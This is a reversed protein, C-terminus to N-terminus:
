IILSYYLGFYTLLTIFLPIAPLFKKNMQLGIFTSWALGISLLVVKIIPSLNLVTFLGEATLIFLGFLAFPTFMYNTRLFHEKFPKKALKSSIYAMLATFGLLILIILFISGFFVLINIEGLAFTNLNLILGINENFWSEILPYRTPNLFFLSFFLGIIGILFISEQKNVHTLLEKGPTRFKFKIEPNGKTCKHCVLCDRKSPNTGINVFTPCVKLSKIDSETTKPADIEVPGLKSFLALLTGIPCVYKCWVRKVMLFGLIASLSLMILFFYASAKPVGVMGFVRESLVVIFLSLFPLWSWRLLKPLWRFGKPLGRSKRLKNTYDSVAGLPCLWGCWARGVFLVSLILLPWWLVWWIDMTAGINFFNAGLVNIIMLLWVILATIYFVQPFYKTYSFKLLLKRTPKFGLALFFLLAFILFSGLLLKTLGTDSIIQSNSGEGVVIIGSMEYHNVGCYVACYYHFEGPIDTPIDFTKTEGPEIRGMINLDYAGFGHAMSDQNIITLQAPEDLDFYVINPEINTDILTVTANQIALVPTLLLISILLLFALRM